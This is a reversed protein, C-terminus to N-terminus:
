HNLMRYIGQNLLSNMPNTGYGYPSMGYNGYGGYGGMGGMMPNYGYGGMGGMMPNYGYGGMMPNYGYGGMGGNMMRAAAYVGAGKLLASGVGGVASGVASLKSPGKAQDPQQKATAEDLEKSWDKLQGDSTQDKQVSGSMTGIQQNDSPQMQYPQAPPVQQHFQGQPGQAQQYQQQLPNFIPQQYNSYQGSSPAQNSSPPQYQGQVATPQPQYVPQQYTQQPAPNPAQQQAQQPQYVPQQYPAGQPQSQFQNQNQIQNQNQNQAQTSQIFSGPPAQQQGWAATQFQAIAGMVIILATGQIRQRVKAPSM